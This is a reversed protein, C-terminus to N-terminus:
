AESIAKFRPNRNKGEGFQIECAQEGIKPAQDLARNEFGPQRAEGHKVKGPSPGLLVLWANASGRCGFPWAFKQDGNKEGYDKSAQYRKEPDSSYLDKFEGLRPWKMPKEM